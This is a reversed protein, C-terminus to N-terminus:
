GDHAVVVHVGWRFASGFRKAGCDLFVDLGLKASLCDVLALKGTVPFDSQKTQVGTGVSNETVDLGVVAVIGSRADHVDFRDVPLLQVEFGPARGLRDHVVGDHTLFFQM